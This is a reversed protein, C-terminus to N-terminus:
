LALDMQLSVASRISLSRKWGRERVDNQITIRLDYDEPPIFREFPNNLILIDGLDNLKKSNLNERCDHILNHLDGNNMWFLCNLNIMFIKAWEGNDLQGKWTEAVRREEVSLKNDIVRTQYSESLSPIYIGGKQFLDARIVDWFISKGSNVSGDISIILPKDKKGKKISTCIKEAIQKAIEVLDDRSSTEFDTILSNMMFLYGLM